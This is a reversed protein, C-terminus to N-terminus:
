ENSHSYAIAEGPKLVLPIVVCIWKRKDNDWYAPQEKIALAEDLDKQKICRGLEKDKKSIYDKLQQEAQQQTDAVSVFVEHETNWIYTNM